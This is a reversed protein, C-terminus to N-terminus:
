LHLLFSLQVSTNDLTWLPCFPAEEDSRPIPSGGALPGGFPILFSRVIFFM